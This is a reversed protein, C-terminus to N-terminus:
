GALKCGELVFTEIDNFAPNPFVEGHRELGRLAAVDSQGPERRQLDRFGSSTMASRLTEDDYIFQHGWARVFNNIVFCPSAPMAGHIGETSYALYDRELACVSPRTLAIIKALDPTAIRLIGGPRLVRYAEQLLHFGNRYPLHEILHETFVYSFTGDPFPFRKTANCYAVGRRRPFADTNLWGRSSFTVAALTSSQNAPTPLMPGGIRRSYGGSQIEM